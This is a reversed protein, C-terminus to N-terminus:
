FLGVNMVEFVNSFDDTWLNAGAVIRPAGWRSDRMLAGLDEPARAMMVWNSQAKDRAWPMGPRPRDYFQRAMLGHHAALRAVVPSLVLHRNTIHFALVGRPALHSLYGAMAEDTLLHMPIADSSFADLVLLQYRAEPRAALSLRADGLVVRCRDACTKLFTFHRDDRAIREVAPDIEFFTWAQGPQAYAGLTGVGLGIAAVAGPERMHPVAAMLHGFPGTRHYYSLPEGQRGPTTNQLGHLTTGMKLARYPSGPASTVRYTGYFTREAHFSPETAMTAWPSAVLFVAAVAGLTLAHHRRLWTGGVCAALALLLAPPTSTWPGFVISAAIAVAVAPLALDLATRAGRAPDTPRLFAVAALALPYELVRSFLVPALLTNFLGGMMGGCALWFYFETLHRPSPRDTALAGHCVM